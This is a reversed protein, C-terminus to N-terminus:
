IFFKIVNENYKNMLYNPNNEEIIKGNRMFGVTNAYRAEDIYHTTIIITTQKLSTLDIIYDWIRFHMIFLEKWMSLEISVSQNITVYKKRLIPDLAVTPEDLILVSPEHVLSCAEFYSSYHLSPLFSLPKFKL